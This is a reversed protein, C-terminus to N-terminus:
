FDGGTRLYDSIGRVRVGAKINHCTRGACTVIYFRPTCTVIYFRPACTVIYFRPNSDSSDRILAYIFFFRLPYFHYWPFPKDFNYIEHGRPCPNKHETTATNSM